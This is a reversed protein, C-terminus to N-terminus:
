PTAYQHEPLQPVTTTPLRVTFETRGPASHVSVTGGHATVVAHVISLGLGTSGAERSRSGDGRAFREFIHPQLDAPIGPGEDTVTLLAAHDDRSVGVTVRTGEPTHTRANALLNGLVQQLRQGDGTVTVPEEPLDLRWDHRPGAAHADSVADVVLMTLDVQEHALPRGADLRALLLLDEVLATMRTAQSEVRRLVHAIEDPVPQRSRRSLEAYGRIAALPTRLEHSADAVFQRVQTESAHRAELADGVHDLLRNLASGVQGVETRPDTDAAPVRPALKVEGRDLELESVRTATAAVRSLPRLNRRIIVAGAWGAVLLTVLVTAGTVVAISLLTAQTEELPLATVVRTGDELLTAIARYDGLDGLDVDVPDGDVPVTALENVADAPLTAFENFQWQSTESATDTQRYQVIGGGAVQVGGDAPVLGVFIQGSQAGPPPVPNARYRTPRGGDPARGPGGLARRGAEYLQDDVREYLVKHLYIEATVGVVLGLLSLLGVMIAILRTRLPWGAPSWRAPRRPTETPPSSSM